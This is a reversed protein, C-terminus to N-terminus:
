KELKINKKATSFMLNVLTNRGVERTNIDSEAKKEQEAKWVIIM